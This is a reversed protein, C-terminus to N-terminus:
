GGCGEGGRVLAAALLFGGEGGVALFGGGLTFGRTGLGAARTGFVATESVVGLPPSLGAHCFCLSLCIASECELALSPFGAGGGRAGLLPGVSLLGEGGRGVLGGIATGGDPFGGRGPLVEGENDRLMAGAAAVLAPAFSGCLGECSGRLGGLGLGVGRLRTAEGSCVGLETSFPMTLPTLSDSFERGRVGELTLSLARVSAFVMPTTTPSSDEEGGVGGALLGRGGLGIGLDGDLGLMWGGSGLLGVVTVAGEESLTGASEGGILFAEGGMGTRATCGAAVADFSGGGGGVM